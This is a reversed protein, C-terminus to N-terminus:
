KRAKKIEESLQYVAMSYKKSHNYRSIVYFNKRGVWFEKKKKGQLVIVSLPEEAAVKEGFTIKHKNLTKVSYGPKLKDTKLQLYDKGTVKAKHVVPEGTNWGHAKFYAAVSGIADTINSIIDRQGDGDFDVAYNRYSSSIFQGYGMAGAYSGKLSFVDLNEERTLLLYHGLEELFFKSRAPYDFGLTVLSDLVPFSGMNRGYFTEVGIIAVIIEAPVGYKAEARALDDAHKDWFKVGSKIHKSTVFIPRYEHWPKGEAPKAILDLVKQLKKGQAIINRAEAVPFDNQSSFRQLFASVDARSAYPGRQIVGASVGNASAASEALTIGSMCVLVIFLLARIM